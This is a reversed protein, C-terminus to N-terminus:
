RRRTESVYKIMQKGRVPDVVKLAKAERDADNWKRQKAYTLVLMYRANADRPDIRLAQIYSKQAASYKRTSYYALGLDYHATKNSPAVQLVKKYQEIARSFQKKKYYSDGRKMWAAIEQATASSSSRSGSSRNTLRMLAQQAQSSQFASAGAQSLYKRYWTVAVSRNHLRLDYITAINFLAPSYNPFTKVIQKLRVLAKNAGSQHLEVLAYANQLAPDQPKLRLGEALKKQANRWDKRKLHVMGMFFYSVPDNPQDGLITLFEMKAKDFQNNKFLAIGYNKDAQTINESLQCSERFRDTAETTKGLEWLILGLQNNAVSKQERNTLKRIAKGMQGQARSLQGSKWLSLAKEYEKEGSKEGCGFFITFLFSTGGILLFLRKKRM